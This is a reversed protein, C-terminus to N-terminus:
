NWALWRNVPHGCILHYRFILILSLVAYFAHSVTFFTGSHSQVNASYFESM